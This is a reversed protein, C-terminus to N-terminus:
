PQMVGKYSKHEEHAPSAITDPELHPAGLGETLAVCVKDQWRRGMATSHVGQNIIAFALRHGNPALAYGALSSVGDVTGTKAQVKDQAATGRCRRKLTGDRGMIPLTPLLHLFLEDRAAAYRLADVLVQPTLYNYLSLGSGDAVQFHQSPLGLSSLWQQYLAIAMKHNAFPKRRSAALNYFLSEACFNDSEKMMPFLVQDIGHWRSAIHQAHSPLLGTRVEGALTIGERELAPLLAQAFEDKRRYSLPTLPPEKDDWCWGWGYRTSDKMSLDLLVNGEIRWVGSRKLQALLARLDDGGFLPDFGGKIIVDGRLVSDAPAQSVFLSTTLRYDSGLHELALLATLLKQTSAPRLRQQHGHQYLPRDATLDYVYFGLQTTRLLQDQVLSDLRGRITQVFPDTPQMSLSDQGLTPFALVIYSCCLLLFRLM